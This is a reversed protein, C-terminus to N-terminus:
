SGKGRATKTAQAAIGGVATLLPPPVIFPVPPEPPVPPALPALPLWGSSYHLHRYRRFHRYRHCQLAPVVRRAGTARGPSALVPLVLTTSAWSSRRCRYVLVILSGVPRGARLASRFHVDVGPPGVDPTSTWASRTAVASAPVDVLGHAFIRHCGYWTALLRRACFPQVSGTAAPNSIAQKSVTGRQVDVTLTGARQDSELRRRLPANDFDHDYWPEGLFEYHRADDQRPQDDDDTSSWCSGTPRRFWHRMGAGSCTSRDM